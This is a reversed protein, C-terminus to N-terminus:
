EIEVNNERLWQCYNLVVRIEAFSYDDGLKEKLPMAANGGVERVAGLIANMKHKSVLAHADLKGLRVALALHGEVTSQVLRRENAIESVSKGALFMDLTLNRTDGARMEVTDKGRNASKGVPAKTVPQLSTDIASRNIRNENQAKLIEKLFVPGYKVLKAESFGAIGGMIELSQPLEKSLALLTSDALIVHPAVNESAALDQRINKFHTYLDDHVGEDDVSATVRSSLPQYLEVNQLGRLVSWSQATLTLVPYEGTSQALLGIELCQRIYTKWQEKTHDAGIGFTKIQRHDEKVSKSGRLFDIVYNIGFREGLRSVASLLKQVPVTADFKKYETLCNDCTGCHAPAREGFYNLLYKRRCSRTECFSAMQDLKKLMIRTQEDNGEVTAFRKLKFVDGASYFLIAESHLGDRGARGTEQYYGEVNKPLDAHVVFRVNSKNIGMGFAITAVIIRVEDRLFQEQRAERVKRELGAHYAVASFGDEQLDAALTETASRSLCYIIGSESRRKLLYETLQNYYDRKPWVYYYINPRNYSAEFLKYSKLNLKQIIDQRTVNDATATLAILPVQPFKEKLKGLALYEPRFDHGWQSICHAEDVAFLSINLRLLSDIFMADGFLREPAVYLLKLSGDYLQNIIHNQESTSQSSNLYAAAVGNQKLGDVQDKMLAILPSIVIATGALMLAPLQYCISKGGGTPMLVLADTKSLLTRVIAEQNERFGRYGFYQEMAATLAYSNYQSLESSFVQTKEEKNDRATEM